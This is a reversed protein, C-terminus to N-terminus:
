AMRLGRGRQQHRTLTAIEAALSSIGEKLGAMANVGVSKLTGPLTASMATQLATVMSTVDTTFDYGTMTKKSFCLDFVPM